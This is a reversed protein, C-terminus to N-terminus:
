ARPVEASSAPRSGGLRAATILSSGWPLRFGLGLLFRELSASAASIGSVLRGPRFELASIGRGPDRSGRLRLRRRLFLAPALMCMFYSTFVSEFGCEHMLELLSRRTYRRRHGCTEDYRSWLSPMAPVTVIVLGGPVLASSASRLVSSDDEFHELVDLLLLAGFATRFPPSTIDSRVLVVGPHGASAAESISVDSGMMLAPRAIRAVEASSWGTGCGEDLM